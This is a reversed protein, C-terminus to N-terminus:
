EKNEDKNGKWNSIEDIKRKTVGAVVGYDSSGEVDTLVFNNERCIHSLQRNVGYDESECIHDGNKVAEIGDNVKKLIEDDDEEDFSDYPMDLEDFSKVKFGEPIFVVYSTSSSNTIFDGKLKLVEV